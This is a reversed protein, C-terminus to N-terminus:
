DSLAALKSFLGTKEKCLMVM